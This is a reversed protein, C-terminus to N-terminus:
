ARALAIPLPEYRTWRELLAAAVVTPISASIALSEYSSIVGLAGVVLMAPIAILALRAAPRAHSHPGDAIWGLLSGTALGPLVGALAVLFGLAPEHAHVFEYDDRRQLWAPIGALIAVAVVNALGILAGKWAGTLKRRSARDRTWRELVLALLFTPLLAWGIMEPITIVGCFIVGIGGFACLTFRRFAPIQEAIVGLVGGILAGPVFGMITVIVIIEVADNSSRSMALALTCAVAIVNAGGLLVGKWFGSM